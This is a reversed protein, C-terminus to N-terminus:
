SRRPVPGVNPFRKKPPLGGPPPSMPRMGFGQGHMSAVAGGAAVLAATAGSAVRKPNLPSLGSAARVAPPVISSGGSDARKDGSGAKRRPLGSLGPKGQGASPQPSTFHM